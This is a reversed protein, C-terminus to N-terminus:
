NDASVRDLVEKLNHILIKRKNDGAKNRIPNRKMDHRMLGRILWSSNIEYCVRSPSLQPLNARGGVLYFATTQPFLQDARKVEIRLVDRNKESYMQHTSILVAKANLVPTLLKAPLNEGMRFWVFQSRSLLAHLQQRKASVSHYLKSDDDYISFHGPFWYDFGHKTFNIKHVKLWLMEQFDDPACTSLILKRCKPIGLYDKMDRSPLKGTKSAAKHIPVAWADIQPFHEPIRYKKISHIVPILRCNIEPPKPTYDSM